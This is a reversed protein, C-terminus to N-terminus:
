VGVDREWGPCWTALHERMTQWEDAGTRREQWERLVWGYLERLDDPASEKWPADGDHHFDYIARLVGLAYANCEDHRGGEHFTSLREVHPHLTEELVQWVADHPATYGYRGQGSRAAIEDEDVAMLDMEVEGAVAEVDVSGILREIEERVARGVADKRGELRTLLETREHPRLDAVRPARRKKPCMPM